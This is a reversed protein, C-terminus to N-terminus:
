CCGKRPREDDPPQGALYGRLVERLVHWAHRAAHIMESWASAFAAKM